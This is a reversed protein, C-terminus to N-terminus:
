LYTCPFNLPGSSLAVMAAKINFDTTKHVNFKSSWKWNGIGNGIELEM